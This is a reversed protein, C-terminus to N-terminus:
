ASGRLDHCRMLPRARPGTRAVAPRCRVRWPGRTFRHRRVCDPLETLPSAATKSPEAPLNPASRGLTGELPGTWIWGVGPRGHCGANRFRCLSILPNQGKFSRRVCRKLRRRFRMRSKSPGLSAGGAAVSDLHNTGSGYSREQLAARGLDRCLLLGRPHRPGWHELRWRGSGLWSM